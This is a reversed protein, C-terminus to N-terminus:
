SNQKVNVRYKNRGKYKKRPSSRGKRIPVLNKTIEEMMYSQLEERKEDDEEIVIKIIYEKFTGILINMNVKYHYKLTGKEKKNIENNADNKLVQVMNFLLMQAYFDQEVIIQKKGSINEICLKNKMVDYATEIGWRKSYLHNLEETSFEDKPLNTALYEDEGTKLKIKVLRLPVQKVESARGKLYKDSINSARAGNTKFEVIEDDSQMSKREKNFTNGQLRFLFKIPLELLFMLMETSFYGRDFITIIKRELGLIELASIINLKASKREPTKYKDISSDIMINNEIDYIGFVRARAMKRVNEKNPNLYGYFDRLEETNPIELVTGDIATVIYGKNLTYEPDDYVSRVLHRNLEIFVEPNLKLRQKCFAQKTVADSRRGIDKYYNNIEMTTTKGKKCIICKMMDEFTLKRNRTFANKEKQGVKRIDKEKIKDFIRVLKINLKTM